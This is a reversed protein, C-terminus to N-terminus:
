MGRTRAKSAEAGAEIAAMLVTDADGIEAPYTIEGKRDFM